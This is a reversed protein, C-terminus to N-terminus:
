AAPTTLQCAAGKLDVYILPFVYGPCWAWDLQEQRVKSSQVLLQLLKFWLECSGLEFSIKIWIGMM